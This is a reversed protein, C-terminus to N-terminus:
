NVGTDTVNIEYNQKRSNSGNLIGHKSILLQYSSLFTLDQLKFRTNPATRSLFLHQHSENLLDSYFRAKLLTQVERINFCNM